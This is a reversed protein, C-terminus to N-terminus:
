WIPETSYGPAQEPLKVTEGALHILTLGSETALRNGKAEESRPLEFGVAPTSFITM